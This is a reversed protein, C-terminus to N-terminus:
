IEPRDDRVENDWSIISPVLPTEMVIRSRALAAPQVTMTVEEEPSFICCRCHSRLANTHASAVGAPDVTGFSETTNTISAELLMHHM